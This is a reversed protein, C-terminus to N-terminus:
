AAVDIQERIADAARAERVIVELAPIRTDWQAPTLRLALTELARAGQELRAALAHARQHASASTM